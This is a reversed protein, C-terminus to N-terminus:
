DPEPKGAQLLARYEDVVPGLGRGLNAPAAILGLPAVLLSLLILRFRMPNRVRSQSQAGRLSAPVFRHPNLSQSIGLSRTKLAPPVSAGKPAKERPPPP